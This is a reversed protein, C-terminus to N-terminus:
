RFKCKEIDVISEELCPKMDKLLTREFGNDTENLLTQRGWKEDLDLFPSAGSSLKFRVDDQLSEISIGGFSFETPYRRLPLFCAQSGHRFPFSPHSWPAGNQPLHTRRFVVEFHM